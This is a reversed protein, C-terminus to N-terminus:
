RLRLGLVILGLLLGAPVDILYHQGLVVTSSVLLLNVPLFTWFHMRSVALSGQLFVAMAVHLSPVAVFYGLGNLPLGHRLAVYDLALARGLGFAITGEYTARFSEPYYVCPSVAPYVMSVLLGIGYCAFTREFFGLIDSGTLHLVVLVVVIEPFLMMYANELLHFWLASDTLPFLGEYRLGPVFARYITLDLDRLAPDHVRDFTLRAILYSLNSVTVFGTFMTGVVAAVYRLRARDRRCDVGVIALLLLCSFVFVPNHLRYCWTVAVGLAVCLPPVLGHGRLLTELLFLGRALGYAFPLVVLLLGLIFTWATAPTVGVWLLTAASLACLAVSVGLAQESRRAQALAPSDPSRMPSATSLREVM